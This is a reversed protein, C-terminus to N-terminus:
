LDQFFALAEGKLRDEDICWSDDSLLNFGTVRYDPHNAWAVEFRFPRDRSCIPVAACCLLFPNHDFYVRYLIEVM